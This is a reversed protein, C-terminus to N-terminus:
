NSNRVDVIARRPSKGPGGFYWASLTDDLSVPPAHASTTLTLEQFSTQGSLCQTPPAVHSPRLPPPISPRVHVLCTPAFVGTGPPLAAILALVGSQFSDVYKYQAPSAPAQLPPPSADAAACGGLEAAPACM